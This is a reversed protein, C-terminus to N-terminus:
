TIYKSCWEKYKMSAPVKHTKGAKERSVREGNEYEKFYPITTTRCFPHFPPATVGTIYEDITYIKGDKERCTESTKLDLTALIEYEEIGDEKYAALSGQEIFFTSETYLLRYAEYEKTKFKNSIDSSLIQPNKGQVIITTMSEKLVQELHEKQKWLRDSYNAGNFPYKILNEMANINVHAFESHYGNFIDIDYLTKYYSNKYITKFFEKGDEELSYKYLVELLVDIQKELAKLRNIRSKLSILKIEEDAVGVTKYVKSIFYNLDKIETVSLKKLLDFYNIKNDKSYKVYFDNFTATIDYKAREFVETLEKYFVMVEREGNKFNELRRNNWYKKSM